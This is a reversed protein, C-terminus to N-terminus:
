TGLRLGFIRHEKDAASGTLSGPRRSPKCLLKVPVPLAEHEGKQAGPPPLGSRHLNVYHWRTPAEGAPPSVVVGNGRHYRRAHSAAEPSSLESSFHLSV